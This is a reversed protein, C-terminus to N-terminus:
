FHIYLTMPGIRRCSSILGREQGRSCSSAHLTDAGKILKGLVNTIRRPCGIGIILDTM